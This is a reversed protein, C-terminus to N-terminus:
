FGFPEEFNDFEIGKLGRGLEHSIEGTGIRAPYISLVTEDVLNERFLSDDFDNSHPCM